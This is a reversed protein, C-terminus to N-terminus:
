PNSCTYCNKPDVCTNSYGDAIKNRVLDGFCKKTYNKALEITEVSM